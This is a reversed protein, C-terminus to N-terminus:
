ITLRRNSRELMVLQKLFGLQRARLERMRENLFHDGPNEELAAVLATEVVQLETWSMEIKEITGPTLNERSSDVRTYERFAAMYEADIADRLGPPPGAALADPSPSTEWAPKLLLSAAFALVVSAAAAGYWRRYGSRSSGTAPGSQDMRASIEPWPDRGPSIERPLEALRDILQQENMRPSM